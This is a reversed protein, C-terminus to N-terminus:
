KENRIKLIDVVTKYVYFSGIIFITSDSFMRKAEVIAEELERVEMITNTSAFQKAEQLLIEKSIYRTKDNGDTFYFIAKEDELMKKLIVKEDKTKLISIIYVRKGKNEYQSITQKLHDIAGENHAGDFIITPNEQLTEFRAKHVVTKLAERMVEETIKFGKKKLIDICELCIAANNIQKKGKLNIQVDQYQKYCFTQFDSDYSINNIKEEQVIHLISHKEKCVKKFIDITNTQEYVVTDAGSKIIGAKKYAIDQITKGLVETHDLGVSTIVSIIPNIINTCDYLGGMGTELIVIDCDQKSFYLLALSTIVEFWTVRDKHTSHYREITKSLSNLIENVEEDTIPKNNILIGDNFTILHPSIFKGVRYGQKVLVNSLMECVSGKGNTGAVHIFKIKQHPNAYEQMIWFMADLTPHDTYKSFHSLYEEINM